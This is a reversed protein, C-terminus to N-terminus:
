GPGSVKVKNHWNSHADVTQNTTLGYQGATYKTTLERAKRRNIQKASGSDVFLDALDEEEEEFYEGKKM